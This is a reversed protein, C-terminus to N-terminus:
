RHNKDKDKDKNNTVVDKARQIFSAFSNGHNVNVDPAPKAHSDVNVNTGSNGHSDVNVNAGPKGHSDVNVNTAPGHSDVNVNTGPGHTDVNVVPKSHSDVNVNTGAGHTDVNVNAGPGHTDVNVSVGDNRRATNVNIDIRIPAIPTPVPTAVVTPAANAVPTPTPTRFSIVPHNFDFNSHNDSFVPRHDDGRGKNDRDDNHSPQQPTPIMAQGTVGLIVRGIENHAWAPLSGTTFVDCLAGTGQAGAALQCAAAVRADLGEPQQQKVFRIVVQGVNFAAWPPLQGASIAGCLKVLEPKAQAAASGCATVVDSGPTTSIVAPQVVITLARTTIHGAADAVQVTFNGTGATTPTGTINGATSLVLGAPLAGGINTWVYPTTGGSAVLTQGYAAGVQGDALTSTSITLTPVAVVNITLPMTAVLGAADTVQAVFTSMGATTATGAIVGTSPTLALGAPLTGSAIAWTYPTTGGAAALTQSYAVALTADPLATTTISVGAAVVITLPQVAVKTAGDTVQVVFTSTGATTPAGSIVGTAGTLSLGIPLTGSAITWSYAPIGGAAALTQTYAAGVQGGPLTTTGVTVTPNTAISLSQTATHAASDAVQATFTVTGVATGTGSIIGTTSNLTLGAPLTGTSITWTYPTTGGTAALPQTYAANVETSPLSATAIALAQPDARVLAPFTLLSALFLVPAAAWAWKRAFSKLETM